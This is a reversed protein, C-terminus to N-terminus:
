TPAVVPIGLSAAATALREDYAVLGELEDGLTLASALHVADLTRLTAPELLAATEFVDTTVQLLVLADLVARAQVMRDPASRGVARLLETRTLDSSVAVRQTPALWRRLARSEAEAVVLKTLASTDVYFAVEAGNTPGCRRWRM